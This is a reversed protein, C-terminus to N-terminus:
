LREEFSTRRAQQCPFIKLNLFVRVSIAPFDLGFLYAPFVNM